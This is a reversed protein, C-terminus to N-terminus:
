NWYKYWSLFTFIQYVKYWENHLGNNFKSVFNEIYIKNLLHEPFDNSKILSLFENKLFKKLWLDVPGGFGKKNKDMISDPIYDKNIEKLIYKSVGRNYKFNSPLRASFQLLRHDLYPERGEISQSM